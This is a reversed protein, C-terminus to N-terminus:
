NREAVQRMAEKRKAEVIKWAKTKVRELGKPWKASIAANVRPWDTPYTSVIGMAYTQAIQDQTCGQRLENEIVFEVDVLEM